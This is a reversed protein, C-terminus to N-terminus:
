SGPKFTWAQHGNLDYAYLYNEAGLPSVLILDGAIVPTTYIKGGPQSWLKSQGDKDIQYIAGSETAVLFVDNVMLPSTTIPGDPQVPTWNYKGEEINYSYFNGELDGFYL